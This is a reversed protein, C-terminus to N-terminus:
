ACCILCTSSRTHTHSVWVCSLTESDLTCKVWAFVSVPMGSFKYVKSSRTPLRLLKSAIECWCWYDACEHCGTGVSHTYSYTVSFFIYIDGAFTTSVMSISRERERESSYGWGHMNGNPIDKICILSSYFFFRAAAVGTDGYHTVLARADLGIHTRLCTRAYFAMKAYMAVLTGVNLVTLECDGM